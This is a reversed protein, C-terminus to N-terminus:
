SRSEMETPSRYIPEWYRWRNRKAVKDGCSPCLAYIVTGRRVEETATEVDRLPVKKGEERCWVVTIGRGPVPIWSSGTWCILPDTNLEDNPCYAERTRISMREVWRKPMEWLKHSGHKECPVDM